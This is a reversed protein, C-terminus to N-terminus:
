HHPSNTQASHLARLAPLFRHIIPDNVVHNLADFSDVREKASEYPTNWWKQLRRLKQGYAFYRDRLFYHNIRIRSIPYDFNSGGEVRKYNEDVACKGPIYYCAHVYDNIITWEPRVISKISSNESYTEEAKWVLKEILFEGPQIKEVGSTGYMQWNVTVGGYNEYDALFDVLNDKEVPFLFEDTDIIALWKTEGSAYRITWNYVDVQALVAPQNPIVPWHFLEVEGADIYPQLVADMNDQSGHNFLYFHQVGVCKHFDIWEKLYPADNQSITCISLAYRYSPALLTNPDRSAKTKKSSADLYVM